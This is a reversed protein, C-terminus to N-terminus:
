LRSFLFLVTESAQADRRFRSVSFSVFIFPVGLFVPPLMVRSDAACRMEHRLPRRQLNVRM